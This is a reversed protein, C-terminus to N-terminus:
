YSNKFIMININTVFNCLYLSVLLSYIFNKLWTYSAIIKSISHDSYHNEIIFIICILMYGATKNTTYILM